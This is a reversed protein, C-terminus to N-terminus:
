FHKIRHSISKKLLKKIGKEGPYEMGFGKAHIEQGVRKDIAKQNSTKFKNPSKYKGTMIAHTASKTLPDNKM